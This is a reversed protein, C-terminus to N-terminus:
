EEIEEPYEIQYGMEEISALVDESIEEIDGEGNREVSSIDIQGPYTEMIGNVSALTLMDGTEFDDFKSDFEEGNVIIVPEDKVIIIDVDNTTKIYIGECHFYEPETQVMACSPLLAFLMVLITSAMLTVVKRSLLVFGRNKNTQM